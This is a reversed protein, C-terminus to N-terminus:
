SISQNWESEINNFRQSLYSAYAFAGKPHIFIYSDANAVIESEISYYKSVGHHEEICKIINEKTKADIDHVDAFFEKTKEVSM